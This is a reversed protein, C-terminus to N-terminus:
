AHGNLIKNSINVDLLKFILVEVRPDGVKHIFRTLVSIIIMSLFIAYALLGLGLKSANGLIHAFDSFHFM